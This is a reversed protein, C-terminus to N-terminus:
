SQAPNLGIGAFGTEGRSQDHHNGKRGSLVGGVAKQSPSRPPLRGPGVIASPWSNETPPAGGKCRSVFYGGVAMRRKAEARRRAAPAPGTRGGGKTAMFAAIPATSGVFAFVM